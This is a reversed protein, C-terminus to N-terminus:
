QQVNVNAKFYMSAGVSMQFLTIFILYILLTCLEAVGQDLKISM